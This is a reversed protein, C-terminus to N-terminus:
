TESAYRGNSSATMTSSLTFHIHLCRGCCDWVRSNVFRVVLLRAEPPCVDERGIVLDDANLIADGCQEEEQESEGQHHHHAPLDGVRAHRHRHYTRQQRRDEPIHRGLPDHRRVKVVGEARHVPGDHDKHADHRQGKGREAIVDHRQL